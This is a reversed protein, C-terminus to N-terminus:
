ECYQFGNSNIMDDMTFYVVQGGKVSLKGIKVLSYHRNDTSEINNVILKVKGNPLVKEVIMVAKMKYNSSNYRMGFWTDYSVWDESYCILDGESVSNFRAIREQRVREKEQRKQREEERKRQEDIQRQRENERKQNETYEYYSNVQSQIELVKKKFNTIYKEKVPISGNAAYQFALDNIENELFPIQSKYKICDNLNKINSLINSILDKRKDDNPYSELYAIKKEISNSKLAENFEKNQENLKLLELSCNRKNYRLSFSSNLPKINNNITTFTRNSILDCGFKLKNCKNKNINKSDLDYILYSKKDNIKFYIKSNEFFSNKLLIDQNTNIDSFSKNKTDLLTFYNTGSPFLIYNGDFSKIIHLNPNNCILSSNIQYQQIVDYENKLEINIKLNPNEFVNLKYLATIESKNLARNYIRIDDIKGKFFRKNLHGAGINIVNTSIINSYHRNSNSIVNGDEYIKINGSKSTLVIHRWTKFPIPSIPKLLISSSNTYVAANGKTHAQLHVYKGGKDSSVIAQFDSTYSDISIWVSISVEKTSNFSHEIKIYDNTGDFYYSSNSEGNRDSTLSAGNVIGNNGNGSEDNANGNFPYHAVLGDEINQGLLSLSVTLLTFFLYITKM